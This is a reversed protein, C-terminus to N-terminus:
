CALCTARRTRIESSCPCCRCLALSPSHPCFLAPSLAPAAPSLFSSPRTLSRRPCDRRCARLRPDTVTTPFASSVLRAWPASARAHPRLCRASVLHARLVSLSRPARALSTPVSLNAGGLLPLPPALAHPM